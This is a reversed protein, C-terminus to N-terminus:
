EIYKDSKVLQGASFKGAKLWGSKGSRRTSTNSRTDSRPVPCAPTSYKCFDACREAIGKERKGCCGAAPKTCLDHPHNIFYEALWFTEDLSGLHLLAFTALVSARQRWLNDSGAWRELFARIEAKDPQTLSWYAHMIDKASLDILDWNNAQHLHRDYFEVLERLAAPDKQGAHRNAQDVMLLLAAFRIEHWESALLAAYDTYDFKGRYPKILSRTVPVKIGLFRDGEGYQGPGTKFFKMLHAAQKPDGHRTFEETLKQVLASEKRKPM